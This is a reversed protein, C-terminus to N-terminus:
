SPRVCKKMVYWWHCQTNEPQVTNLLKSLYWSTLSNAIIIVIKLLCFVSDQILRMWVGVDLGATTLISHYDYGCYSWRYALSAVFGTLNLKTLVKHFGLVWVELLYYQFMTQPKSAILFVTTPITRLSKQFCHIRKNVNHHSTNFFLLSRASIEICKAFEGSESENNFIRLTNRTPSRCNLKHWSDSLMEADKRQHPATM